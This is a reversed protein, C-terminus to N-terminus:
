DIDIRPGPMGPCYVGPPEIKLDLKIQDGHRVPANKSVHKVVVEGAAVTFSSAGDFFGSVSPEVKVLYGTTNVFRISDGRSVKLLDPVPCVCNPDPCQCHDFDVAFAMSYADPLDCHQICWACCGQSMAATLILALVSCVGRAGQGWGDVRKDSRRM